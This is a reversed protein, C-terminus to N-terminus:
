ITCSVHMPKELTRKCYWICEPLSVNYCHFCPGKFIYKLKKFFWLVNPYEMQWTLTGNRTDPLWMIWNAAWAKAQIKKEWSKQLAIGQLANRTVLLPWLHTAPLVQYWWDLCDSEQLGPVQRKKEFLHPELPLVKDFQHLCHAKMCTYMHIECRFQSKNPLLYKLINYVGVKISAGHSFGHGHSTCLFSICTEKLACKNSCSCPGYPEREWSFVGIFNINRFIRHQLSTGM